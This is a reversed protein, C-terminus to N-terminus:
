SLQTSPKVPSQSILLCRKKPTGIGTQYETPV